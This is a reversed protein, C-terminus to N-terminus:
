KCNILKLLAGKDAKLYKKGIKLYYEDGLM